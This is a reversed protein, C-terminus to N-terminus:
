LVEEYFPNEWTLVYEGELDSLDLAEEISAYADRGDDVSLDSDQDPFTFMGNELEAITTNGEVTQYMRVVKM